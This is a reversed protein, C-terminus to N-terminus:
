GGGRPDSGPVPQRSTEVVRAFDLRDDVPVADTAMVAFRQCVARHRDIQSAIQLDVIEFHDRRTVASAVAAPKGHAVGFQMTVDAARPDFTINVQQGRHLIVRTRRFQHLHEFFAVVTHYQVVLGPVPDQSPDIHVARIVAGPALFEVVRAGLSLAPPSSLFRIAPISPDPPRVLSAEARIRRRGTAVSVYWPAPRHSQCPCFCVGAPGM